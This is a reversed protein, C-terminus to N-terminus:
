SSEKVGYQEWYEQMHKLEETRGHQELWTMLHRMKLITPVSGKGSLIGEVEDIMSQGERGVEERDLLLVAGVVNGGERKVIDIAGRIATGATAVDDLILVRKGKVPAGVTVGGEGHDKAEKRDYAYGVDIGHDRHLLLATCAAFPIGKYAPGFLIDFEPLGAKLSDAITKAYATCLTDLVLGDALLGANFFYPSQRGSKLTFSGFKLAGVAMSHEILENQYKNLAAM